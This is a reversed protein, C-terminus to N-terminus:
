WQFIFSGGLFSIPNGRSDKHFSLIETSQCTFGLRELLRRSPHNDMATGASFRHIGQQDRFCLMLARCSEAAIGQGHADSHFCYGLDLTDKVRHFCVYGLMNGGAKPYVAFFLGSEAFRATLAKIDEERTPMPHDYIAYPSQSFDRFIKGMDQWDANQLKRIFLRQTTLEM